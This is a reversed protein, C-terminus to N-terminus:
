RWEKVEKMLLDVLRDEKARAVVKGKKFVVGRGKGSAIGLDAERAEGPGNVACGMVAVTLPGVVGKLQREVDAVLGILDVKCRGCTPCSILEVGKKRLGLSGLIGESLLMGLGVSSKILGSFVPGAESIGIHLPYKYKKSFLRYASVTAPVSSAKLSVKINRYDLMDINREASEVLAEPVPHGYKRLLDKELSGANVGVRLPINADGLAKVVEKVKWKAGINGPNIRLGDVGQGIAKLALRWDFHIDAIVPIKVSKKIRGLARAAEMDPVALRIIECGERELAKIQRVTARIDRTDTKTMSQVSVPSGGGVPVAGVYIKRTKKRRGTKM